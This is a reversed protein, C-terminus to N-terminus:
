EDARETNDAALNGPLRSEGEAVRSLRDPLGNLLDSLPRVRGAPLAGAGACHFAGMM